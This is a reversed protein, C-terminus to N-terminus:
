KDPLGNRTKGAALVHRLLPYWVRNTVNHLSLQFPNKRYFYLLTLLAAALRLDNRGDFVRIDYLFYQLM